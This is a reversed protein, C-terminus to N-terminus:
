PIFDRPKLAPNGGGKGWILRKQEDDRVSEQDVRPKVARRRRRRQGRYGRGKKMKTQRIQKFRPKGILGKKKKETV